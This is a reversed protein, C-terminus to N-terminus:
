NKLRIFTTKEKIKHIAAAKAYIPVGECMYLKSGQFTEKNWILFIWSEEESLIYKRVIVVSSDVSEDKGFQYVPVDEELISKGSFCTWDIFHDEFESTKILCLSEQLENYKMSVKCSDIKPMIIGTMKMESGSNTLTVASSDSYTLSVKVQPDLHYFEEVTHTGDCNIDDVIFWMGADAAMVKRIVHCYQRGMLRIRYSMEAYHIGQKECYYTKMCDPYSYYSWSGNPIGMSIGDVVCVNHAQAKKLLVRLSEDERYSYRGSDILFPKGQYYISIHTLDAHGHGSGLNGCSLYTYSASESWDNRFYLNGSDTGYLNKTEPEKEEMNEYRIIGNSGLLWASDMDMSRYGAYKFEPNGTLVAAKTLVDRVDTVDSDCQAIQHHDPAAAYVVYSSMVEVKRILWEVNEGTYQCILLLKMCCILVEMHYMMSQEWHAGEELIQLSLQRELEEWAWRKMGNKPLYEEFLLYGMCISTLQLVGWNSLTYKGIYRARISEFQSYLSNFIKETEEDDLFNEGSLYLILFQWNMCRIGTDITRTTESGQPLIENHEIWHFLYWKLVRIYEFDKTLYYSLLLKHLFDHRNLMYVWEPDGNPSKDWEMPDLRYLEGCPEMDWKDKFCFKQEKIEDAQEILERVEKSCSRRMYEAVFTPNYRKLFKSGQEYVSRYKNEM